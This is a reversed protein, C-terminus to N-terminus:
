QVIGTQDTGPLQTLAGGVAGAKGANKIPTYAGGKKLARNQLMKLIPQSYLAPSAAALGAAIPHGAALGGGGLLAEITAIRGASGSDPETNGIVSEVAEADKQGHATGSAFRQKDKSKDRAKIAQLKQAPTYSGQNKTSYLAAKSSAKFKAYGRDVNNLDEALKPNERKLMAKMDASVQKLVEAVKREQYNGSKLQDAETRLAEQIEKVKEGTAKGDKDFKAIVKKDIMNNVIKAASPELDQTALTKTQELFSRFTVGKPDASDINGSMKSLTRDYAKGMEQEAHAIADRGTRNKPIEAGGADKIAENLESRNWQETAKGRARKIMDGVGPISTARQELSSAIKGGRMGPTTVVGKDALARVTPSVPKQLAKLSPGAVDGLVGIAKGGAGGAISSGIMGGVDEPKLNKISEAVSKATDVPHTIADPARSILDSAGGLARGITDIPHQVANGMGTLATSAGAPIGKVMNIVDQVPGHEDAQAAANAAGIDKDHQMAADETKGPPPALGNLHLKESLHAKTTGDPVGKIVTGDPLQVDM